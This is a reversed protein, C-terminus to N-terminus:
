HVIFLYRILVYVPKYWDEHIHTTHSSRTYPRYLSKDENKPFMHLIENFM